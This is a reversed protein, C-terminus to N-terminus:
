MTKVNPHQNPPVNKDIPTFFDAMKTPRINVKTLTPITPRALVERLWLVCFVVCFNLCVVVLM